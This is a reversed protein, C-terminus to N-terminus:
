HLIVNFIDVTQRPAEEHGMHGVQQMVISNVGIANCFNILLPVNVLKDEQGIICTFTTPHMRILEANDMRSKMALANWAIAEPQMKKALEIYTQIAEPIKQFFLNPIAEQIFVDKKTIVLKAVRERDNQKELSDSWPHSHFLVIHEFHPNLRFLELAVYGGLSHGVVIANQLKEYEVIELVQEAMTTITMRTEPEFPSAGHGHLDICYAKVNLHPTLTSWMSSDEMFGHLFIVPRGEGTITYNLFTSTM